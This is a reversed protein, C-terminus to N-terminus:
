RSESKVKKPRGMKVNGGLAAMLAAKAIVITPRTNESGTWTEEISTATIKDLKWGEGARATAWDGLTNRNPLARPARDVSSAVTIARRLQDDIWDLAPAREIQVNAGVFESSVPQNDHNTISDEGWLLPSRRIDDEQKLAIQFRLEALRAEEDSLLQWVERDGPSSRMPNTAPPVYIARRAGGVCISAIEHKPEWYSPAVRFTCNEIVVYSDLAGDHLAALLDLAARAEEGALTELRLGQVTFERAEREDSGDVERLRPSRKGMRAEVLRRRVESPVWADALERPIKMFLSM